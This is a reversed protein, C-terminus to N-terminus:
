HPCDSNGQRSISCELMDKGGYSRELYILPERAPREGAPNWDHGLYFKSVLDQIIWENEDIGPSVGPSRISFHTLFGDRITSEGWASTDLSSAVPWVEVIRSGHDGQFIFVIEDLLGERELEQFITELKSYLCLVQESYREMRLEIGEVSSVQFSFPDHKDLWDGPSKRIRCEADYVYPFHPIMLHAFLLTGRPQRAVDQFLLDFATASALPGTQNYPQSVIPIQLGRPLIKTLFRLFKAALIKRNQRGNFYHGLILLSKEHAPISEDFITGFSTSYTYCYSIMDLESSCYDIYSPQYVRIAFGNEAATEFLRNRVMLHKASTAHDGTGFKYFRGPNEDVVFNVTSALSDRSRLYASFSDGFLRFGYNDHFAAIQNRAALSEEIDSPFGGLGAHEDFVVHVISAHNSGETTKSDSETIVEFPPATLATILGTFLMVMSTSAVVTWGIRGFRAFIFVGCAFIAILVYKNTLVDSHLHIANLNELYLLAALAVLISPIPRFRFVALNVTLVAFLLACYLEVSGSYYPKYGNSALFNALVAGPIAFATISSLLYLKSVSLSEQRSAM